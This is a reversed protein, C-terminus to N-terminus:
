ERVIKQFVKIKMYIHRKSENSNKIIKILDDFTKDSKIINYQKDKNNENFIIIRTHTITDIPENESTHTVM